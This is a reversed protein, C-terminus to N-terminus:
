GNETELLVAKLEAAFNICTKKAERRFQFSKNKRTLSKKRKRKNEIKIDTQLFFYVRKEIKQIIITKM